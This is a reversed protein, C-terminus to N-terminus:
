LVGQVVKQFRRENDLNLFTLQSSANEWLVNQKRVRRIHRSAGWRGPPLEGRQPLREQDCGEMRGPPIVRATGAHPMTQLCLHVDFALVYFKSQAWVNTSCFPTFLFKRQLPIHVIIGKFNYNAKKGIGLTQAKHHCFRACWLPFGLTRGWFIKFFLPCIHM